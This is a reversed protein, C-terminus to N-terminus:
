WGYEIVHPYTQVQENQIVRIEKKGNLIYEAIVYTEKEEIVKARIQKEKITGNEFEKYKIFITKKEEMERLNRILMRYNGNKMTANTKDPDNYILALGTQLLRCSTM